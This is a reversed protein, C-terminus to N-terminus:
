NPTLPVSARITTGAGPKSEIAVSGNVLKLREQMSVLGLGSSALAAEVDFGKGQDCVVLQLQDNAGRLSVDFRSAGSHKAANSLAEQLVRFLNIAVDPCLTAPVNDHTFEVIVGSRSSVEKCFTAAAAALGLLDLKSSHLRHSIGSVHSALATVEERLTRAQQRAAAETESINEGLRDVDMALMTMQQGVDDHLERALRSREQEQAEILRRNLNSLTARAAKLDTIDIASEITGAFAGDPTMRPQGTDLLWRYEGDARRLRYEMRYSERREFARRRTGSVSSVEDPHVSELWGHGREAAIDRGTFELWTVNFDTALANADSMRILVPASDALVRFRGESERLSQEAHRRKVRSVLLGAILLSQAVFAAVSGVIPWKYREWVGPERFLVVSGPPLRDESVGWRQLERWDFAPPSLQQTPTQILAPATGGLIRLAVDATTRSLAEIDILKGGISGYGLEVSLMGFILANARARLDALVRETSYMAGDADIEFTSTFFVVSRAPLTSARQLMAAYAMGDPWIFHLRDRFRTSEGELVGRWFRGLEGGGVVVFVNETAPFLRAMAEVSSAPDLAVAVATERDTFANSLFRQDLSAYLIPSDPFLQARHRQVFAAAAGGTTIVLDPRARDAFASRLFEVIAQEPSESFGAPSVVFEAFTLPEASRENLQARLMATFRDLVLNGRESSQLIVVQRVAADASSALLVVLLVALPWGWLRRHRLSVDM